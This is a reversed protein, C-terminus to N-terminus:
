FITYWRSLEETPIFGLTEYLRIAKHNTSAVELCVTDESIAHTLALLVDKGAGPIVAAVCDIRDLYAVGIGLLVGDKHVFYGNGKRLLEESGVISMYSATHVDKMKENYIERWQRLTAETVPITMAETQPLFTIDAKMKIVATYFPYSQLIEHGSAFVSKAGVAKCFAECEQLFEIPQASDRIVIYANGNYPIDKLILSGVGCETTFLPFDRMVEGGQEYSVM